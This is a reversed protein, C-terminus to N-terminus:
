VVCLVEGREYEMVDVRCIRERWKSQMQRQEIVCKCIFGKWDIMESILSDSEVFGHKVGFNYWLMEDDALHKWSKSVIACHCLDKMSLFQFIKLGIERPLQLDFFPVVTIEDIDAILVELLNEHKNLDADHRRKKKTQSSSVNQKIGPNPLNLLIVDTSSKAKPDANCKLDHKAENNIHYASSSPSSSIQFLDKSDNKFTEGYRDQKHTDENFNKHSIQKANQSLKESKKANNKSELLEEKWASRFRDLEDSNDNM